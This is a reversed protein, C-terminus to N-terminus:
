RAYFARIASCVYVVEDEKLTPYLPLTLIEDAAKESQPFAGKQYGLQQYAEQLHIPTPYHLSGVGRSRLYESLADREGCRM